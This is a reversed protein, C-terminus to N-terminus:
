ANASNHNQFLVSVVIEQSEGAADRGTQQGKNGSSDKGLQVATQVQGQVQESELRDATLCLEEEGYDILQLGYSRRVM